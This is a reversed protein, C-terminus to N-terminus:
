ACQSLLGLLLQTKKEGGSFFIKSNQRKKLGIDRYKIIIKLVILFLLSTRFILNIISCFQEVIEPSCLNASHRGTSVTLSVSLM